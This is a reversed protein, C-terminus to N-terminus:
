GFSESVKDLETDRPFTDVGGRWLLPLRVGGTVGGMVGEEENRLLVGVPSHSPGVRPPLSLQQPVAHAHTPHIIYQSCFPGPVSSSECGRGRQGQDKHTQQNLGRGSFFYKYIITDTHPFPKSSIKKLRQWTHHSYHTQKLLHFLIATHQSTNTSPSSYMPNM